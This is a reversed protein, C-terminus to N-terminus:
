CEHILISTAEISTCEKLTPTRTSIAVTCLAPDGTTTADTRTTPRRQVKPTSLFFSMATNMPKCGRRNEYYAMTSHHWSPPGYLIQCTYGGESGSNTCHRNISPCVTSYAAPGVQSTEVVLTHVQRSVCFDSIRPESRVSVRSQRRLTRTVEFM